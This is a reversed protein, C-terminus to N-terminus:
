DDDCLAFYLRSLVDAADELQGAVGALEDAKGDDGNRYAVGIEREIRPICDRVAQERMALVDTDLDGLVKLLADNESKDAM